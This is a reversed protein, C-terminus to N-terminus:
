VYQIKCADINLSKQSYVIETLRLSIQGSYLIKWGTDENTNYHANYAVYNKKKKNNNTNSSLELFKSRLVTFYFNFYAILCSFIM